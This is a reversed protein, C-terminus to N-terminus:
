LRKSDELIGPRVQGRKVARRVATSSVSNEVWERVLLINNRYGYLLDNDNILKEPDSGQRKIAVVGQALLLRLDSEMWVGPTVMSDLIDAGCLLMVQRISRHTSFNAEYVVFFPLLQRNQHFNILKEM